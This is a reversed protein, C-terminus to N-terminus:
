KYEVADDEWTLSKGILKEITGKPLTLRHTFVGLANPGYSRLEDSSVFPIWHPYEDMEDQFSCIENCLGKRYEEPNFRVLKRDSAVESGDYNVAIWM